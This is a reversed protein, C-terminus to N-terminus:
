EQSIQESLIISPNNTYFSDNPSSLIVQQNTLDTSAVVSFNNNMSYTSTYGSNEGRVRWQYNGQSMPINLHNQSVLSDLVMSSNNSTFVQVRYDDAGDLSAWQFNVVNSNVVENNQPYIVQITDNTIDEEIIDECSFFVIGILVVIIVKSITRM